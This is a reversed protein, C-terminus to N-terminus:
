LEHPYHMSVMNCVYQMGSWPVPRVSVILVFLIVSHLGSFLCTLFCQMIALAEEKKSNMRHSKM